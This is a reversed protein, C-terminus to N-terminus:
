ALVGGIAALAFVGVGAVVAGCARVIREGAPWRVLLGILIGALHLCGTSIVFGVGYALPNAAGPLETGHAHGHFLAFAGVITAAAALPLRVSFAVMVGLVLASAAIGFEVFPLPAGAVGILAGLAMVMPFTIPLLWIAPSRLQAGWLGVAVMAVLHDFGLIPHLLGATLGGAVGAEAHALALGPLAWVALALAIRNTLNLPTRNM